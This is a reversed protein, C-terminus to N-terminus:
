GEFVRGLGEYRERWERMPRAVDPAPERRRVDSAIAFLMKEFRDWELRDKAHKAKLAEHLQELTVDSNATLWAYEGRFYSAVKGLFTAERPLAFTPISAESGPKGGNGDSARGKKPKASAHRGHDKM